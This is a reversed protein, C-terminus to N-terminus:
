MVWRLFWGLVVGDLAGITFQSSAPLVQRCGWGWAARRSRPNSHPCCYRWLLGWHSPPMGPLKSSRSSMPSSWKRATSSHSRASPPPHPGPHALVCRCEVWRTAGPGGAAMGRGGRGVPSRPGGRSNPHATAPHAAGVGPAPRRRVATRPGGARTHRRVVPGIQAGVGSGSHAGGVRDHLRTPHDMAPLPRGAPAELFGGAPGPIAPPGRATSMGLHRERHPPLGRLGRWPAPPPPDGEAATLWRHVRAAASLPERLLQELQHNRLEWVFDGLRLMHHLFDGM